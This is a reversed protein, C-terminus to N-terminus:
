DSKKFKPFYSMPVNFDFAGEDVKLPQILMLEIKATQGPLLNGIDLQHLEVNQRADSVKYATNGSAMANDFVQEAKENEMIRAEITKEGITIMM